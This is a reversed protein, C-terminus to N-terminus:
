MADVPVIIVTTTFTDEVGDVDNKMNRHSMKPCSVYNCQATEQQVQKQM